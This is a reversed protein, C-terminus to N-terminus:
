TSYLTVNLLTLDDIRTPERRESEFVRRGSSVAVADAGQSGIEAGVRVMHLATSLLIGTVEPEHFKENLDFTPRAIINESVWGSFYVAGLVFEYRAEIQRM